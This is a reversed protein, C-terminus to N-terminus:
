ARQLNLVLLYSMRDFYSYRKKACLKAFNYESYSPFGAIQNGNICLTLKGRKGQALSTM